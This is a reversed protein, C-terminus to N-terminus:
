AEVRRGALALEDLAMRRLQAAERQRRVALVQDRAVLVAEDRQVRAIALDDALETMVGVDRAAQDQRGVALEHDRGATVLVDHDVREITTWRAVELAVSGADLVDVDRRV